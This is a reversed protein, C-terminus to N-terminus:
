TDKEYDMLKFGMVVNSLIVLAPLLVGLTMFIICLQYALDNDVPILFIVNCFHLTALSELAM